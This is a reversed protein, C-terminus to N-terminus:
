RAQMPVTGSPHFLAHCAQCTGQTQRMQISAAEFRGENLLRSLEQSQSALKSGLKTYLEKEQANLGLKDALPAVDKAADAMKSAVTAAEKMQRERDAQAMAVTHDADPIPAYRLSNMIERLRDQTVAHMAPGQTTAVRQEYLEGATPGCASICLCALVAGLALLAVAFAKRGVPPVNSM